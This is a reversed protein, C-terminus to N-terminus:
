NYSGNKVTSYFQHHSHAGSQHLALPACFCFHGQFIIHIEGLGWLRLDAPAEVCESMSPLRFQLAGPLLSAKSAANIVLHLNLLFWSIVIKGKFFQVTRFTPLTLPLINKSVAPFIFVFFFFFTMSDWSSHFGNLSTPFLIDMFTDMQTQDTYNFVLRLLSLLCWKVNAGVLCVNILFGGQLFLPISATM